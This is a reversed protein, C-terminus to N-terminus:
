VMVRTNEAPYKTDHRHDSDAYQDLEYSNNVTLVIQTRQKDIHRVPHEVPSPAKMFSKWKRKEM